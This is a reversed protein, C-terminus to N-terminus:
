IKDADEKSLYTSALLGMPISLIRRGDREIETFAVSSIVEFGLDRYLNYARTNTALVELMAIKYGEKKFLWNLFMEYAEKGYGQGRYKICIDAGIDIIEENFRKTRFYGIGDRDRGGGHIAGDGRRSTILYYKNEPPLAKFWEQTQELTFYRDDHLYERCENRVANLFELDEEELPRFTIEM